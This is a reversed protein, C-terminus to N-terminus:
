REPRSRLGSVRPQLMKLQCPKRTRSPRGAACVERGADTIRYGTQRGVAGQPVEEIWGKKLMTAITKAGAPYLGGWSEVLGGSLTRLADYERKTPDTM